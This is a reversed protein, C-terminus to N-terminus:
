GEAEPSAESGPRELGLDTLKQHLYTRTIGLKRAASSVNWGNDELVSEVYEREVRNRLDRLSLPARGPALRLLYEEASDDSGSTAAGDRIAAPLSAASIPDGGFIVLREALAKLERVNGPWSYRELPGYVDESVRRRGTKHQRRFHAVFHEFLTRVDGQRDRLPPLLIPLNCLRYYLDSRFSGDEMATSLDRHTAAIVRVDVQRDRSEGVRRVQGDELVRLLRSQLAPPMDGIEDLFLTGGDAEEFLGARSERADTFAGRAHGFLESEVLHPPISACNIKVFPQERRVSGRHLADAVLEKGTGSEGLILVRAETGAAKAILERVEALAASTGLLGPPNALKDRLDRVERELRQHQLAHDISTLLRERSFPKEIFDRVGLKLAEVTETISAEGSVMITLPLRDAAVLSRVLEVGSLGPLRVDLLLLDPANEEAEDPRAEADGQGRRGVIEAYADEARAVGRPQYGAERLLYILNARIKDDDEVILIRTM